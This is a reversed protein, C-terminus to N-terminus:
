YTQIKFPLFLARDSVTPKLDVAAIAHIKKNLIRDHDFQFSGLFNEWDM